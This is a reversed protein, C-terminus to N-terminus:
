PCADHGVEHLAVFKKRSPIQTHDLYITKKRRDIIGVVKRLADKAFQFNKSIFGPEITSLDIGQDIQLNVFDVIEDVPTPLVGWAKAALLINRSIKEIEDASELPPTNM